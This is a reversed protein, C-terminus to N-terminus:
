GRMNEKKDEGRRVGREENSSIEELSWRPIKWRLPHAKGYGPGRTKRREGVYKEERWNRDKATFQNNIASIIRTSSLM